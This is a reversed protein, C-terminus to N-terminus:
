AVYRFSEISGVKGSKRRRGSGDEGSLGDTLEANMPNYMSSSDRLKQGSETINQPSPSISESHDYTLVQQYTTMLSVSSENQPLLTLEYDLNVIATEESAIEALITARDAATPRFQRRRSQNTANTSGEGGGNRSPRMQSLLDVFPSRRYLFMSVGGRQARAGM